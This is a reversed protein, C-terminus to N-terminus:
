LMEAKKLLRAPNYRNEIMVAFSTKNKIDEDTILHLDIIGDKLIHGTKQRNLEALAYNWGDIWAKFLKEQNESGSFHVLLDIDSAPGALAEKTSGIIYIAKIGYYRFDTKDAIQQAMRFRWIWHEDKSTKLIQDTENILNRNELLQVTKELKKYFLFLSLRKAITNLLNQEEPLFCAGCFPIDTYFVSIKGVINHDVILESSQYWQSEHFESLNFTHNEFEIKAHCVTPFQWGIPIIELIKYFIDNFALDRNTLVNEINYLCQLEKAREQLPKFSDFDM